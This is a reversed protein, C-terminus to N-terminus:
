PLGRAVAESDYSLRVGQAARQWDAANAATIGLPVHLHQQYSVVFGQTAWAELTLDAMRAPDVEFVVDQAVAFGPTATVLDKGTSPDYTADRALLQLHNATLDTRGRALVTVRVVVFVGRTSISEDQTAVKTGVRVDSVVAAGSGYARPQGLTGAVVQHDVVSDSVHYGIAAVAVLVVAALTSALRARPVTRVATM